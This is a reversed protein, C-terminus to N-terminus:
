VAAQAAANRRFYRHYAFRAPFFLLTLWFAVPLVVSLILSLTAELSSFVAALGAAAANRIELASTSWSVTFPARYDEMLLLGVRAQAIVSILSEQRQRAQSLEQNAAAIEKELDMAENLKGARERQLKELRSLRTQADTIARASTALEVASDDSSQFVTEVRGLAGLETMASEFHGSPVSLLAFLARGTGTRNETHISEFYGGENSVIRHMDAVSRDFQASHMRLDAHRIESSGGIVGERSEKTVSPWLRNASLGEAWMSNLEWDPGSLGSERRVRMARESETEGSRFGFVYIGLVVILAGIVYAIRKKRSPRATSDGM